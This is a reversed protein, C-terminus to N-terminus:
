DAALFQRLSNEPQAREAALPSPVTQRPPAPTRHAATPAAAPARADRQQSDPVGEQSSRAGAHPGRCYDAAQHGACNPILDSGRERQPPIALQRNPPQFHQAGRGPPPARPPAHASPVRHPRTTSNNTPRRPGRRAAGREELRRGSGSGGGGRATGAGGENRPDPPPGVRWGAPAPFQGLRQNNTLGPAPGPQPRATALTEPRRQSAARRTGPRLRSSCWWLKNVTRSCHRRVRERPAARGGALGSPPLAVSPVRSTHLGGELRDGSLM